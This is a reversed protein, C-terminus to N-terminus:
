SIQTTNQKRTRMQYELCEKRTGTFYAVTKDHVIFSKKWDSSDILLGTIACKNTTM